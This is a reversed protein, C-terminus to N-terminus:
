GLLVWSLLAACVIVAAAVFVYDSKRARYKRHPNFGMGETDDATMSVMCTVRSSPITVMVRSRASLFFAILPTIHSSNSAM